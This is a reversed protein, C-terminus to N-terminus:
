VGPDKGDSALHLQRPNPPMFLEQYYIPSDRGLFAEVVLLQGKTGPPAGIILALPLVSGPDDM